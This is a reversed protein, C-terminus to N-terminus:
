LVHNRADSGCKETNPKRPDVLHYQHVMEV